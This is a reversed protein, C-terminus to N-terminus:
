QSSCDIVGGCRSAYRGVTIPVRPTTVAAWGSAAMAPMWTMSWPPVATSAAQAVENASWTTSGYM